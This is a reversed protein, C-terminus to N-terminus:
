VAARWRGGAGVMARLALPFCRKPADDVQVRSVLAHARPITARFAGGGGGGGGNGLSRLTARERGREIRDLRARQRL